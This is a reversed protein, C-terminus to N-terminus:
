PVEVVLVAGGLERYSRLTKMQKITTISRQLVANLGKKRRSKQNCHCVDNKMTM